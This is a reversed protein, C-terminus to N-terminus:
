VYKFTYEFCYMFPLEINALPGLKRSKDIMDEM